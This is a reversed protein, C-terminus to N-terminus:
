KLPLPLPKAVTRNKANQWTKSDFLEVAFTALIKPHAFVKAVKMDNKSLSM